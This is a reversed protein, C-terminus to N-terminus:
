LYMEVRQVARARARRDMRGARTFNELDAASGSWTAALEVTSNTGARWPALLAQLMRQRALREDWAMLKEFCELNLRLDPCCRIGGPTPLGSAFGESFKDLKRVRASGRSSRERERRELSSIREVALEVDCDM